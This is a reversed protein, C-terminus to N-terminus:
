RRAICYGFGISNKEALGQALVTVALQQAWPQPKVKLQVKHGLLTTGKYNVGIPKRNLIELLEFFMEEPEAFESNIAKYKKAANNHLRSALLGIGNEPMWCLNDVTVIIPTLSILQSIQPQSYTRLETAVVRANGQAQPLYNKMALAFDLKLTRLNFCYMRGRRYIRNPELPYPMSFVYPKFINQQHLEKLPESFTMGNAILAALSSQVQRVPIDQNFQITFLLEHFCLNM